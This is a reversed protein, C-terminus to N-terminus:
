KHLYKKLVPRLNDSLHISNLSDNYLFAKDEYDASSRLKKLQIMNSNIVRFDNSNNEKIFKQIENILVDHSGKKEAKKDKSNDIIFKLDSETKGMNYFWIHRFLQYCSYYSCHAVSPYHAKDHLLAASYYNIESKNVLESM